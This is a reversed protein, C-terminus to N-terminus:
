EFRVSQLRDFYISFRGLDNYGFLDCAADVTGSVQTGGPLTLTLKAKPNPATHDDAHIVEISSLQEFPISQGSDLSIQHDVSICNSFSNARVRTITGDRSVLVAEADPWPRAAPKAVAHAASAATNPPAATLRAAVQANTQDGGRPDTKGGLVGNQFLLAVLGSVATIVAAIATLIGPLTQWWSAPKQPEGM